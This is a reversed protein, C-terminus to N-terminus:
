ISFGRAITDLERDIAGLEVSLKEAHKRQSKSLSLGCERQHVYAQLTELISDRRKQLRWVRKETRNKLM